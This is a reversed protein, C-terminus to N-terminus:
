IGVQKNYFNFILINMYLIIYIALIFMIYYLIFYFQEDHKRNSRRLENFM